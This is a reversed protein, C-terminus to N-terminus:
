SPNPPTNAPPIVRPYCVILLDLNLMAARYDAEEVTAFGPGIAAVGQQEATADGQRAKITIWRWEDSKQLAVYYKEPYFDLVFVKKKM